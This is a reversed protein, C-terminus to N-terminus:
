DAALRAILDVAVDLAALEARSLGALRARLLALRRAQGELMLRRGKATAALILARADRPDARRSALGEGALEAALKSMTPARVQEAAALASLSMPGGFVLVSLASLKPASLGSAADAVRLRRLLRIAGSHLRQALDPAAPATERGPTPTRKVVGLM